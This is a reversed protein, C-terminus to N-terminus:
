TLEWEFNVIKVNFSYVTVNYSLLIDIYIFMYFDVLKKCWVILNTVHFTIFRTYNFDLFLFPSPFAYHVPFSICHKTVHIFTHTNSLPLSRSTPTMMGLIKPNVLICILVLLPAPITCIFTCTLYM